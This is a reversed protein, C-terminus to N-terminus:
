NKVTAEGSLVSAEERIIVFPQEFIQTDNQDYYRIKYENYGTAMNGYDMNANYQWYTGLAPFKTLRFDNVTIYKVQGKTVRGEIRVSRANTRYTNTGAPTTPAIITFDKPSITYTIATATTVTPQNSYVVLVQKSIIREESDLAKVVIDNTKGTLKYQKIEFSSNERNISAERTGVLVKIVQPSVRGEIDVLSGEISSEDSPSTIVLLENSTTGM